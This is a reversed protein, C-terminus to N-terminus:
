IITHEHKLPENSLDNVFWHWEIDFHENLLVKSFFDKRNEEPVIDGLIDALIIHFSDQLIGEILDSDDCEDILYVNEEAPFSNLGESELLARFSKKSKLVVVNRNLTKIKTKM